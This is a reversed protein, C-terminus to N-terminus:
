ELIQSSENFFSINVNQHRSNPQFVNIMKEAIINQM